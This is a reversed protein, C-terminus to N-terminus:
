RSNLRALKKGTISVMILKAKSVNLKRSFAQTIVTTTERPGDTKRRLGGRAENQLIEAFLHTYEIFGADDGVRTYYEAIRM